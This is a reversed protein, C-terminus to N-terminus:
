VVIHDEMERSSFAVRTEDVEELILSPRWERWTKESARGADVLPSRRRGGRRAPGRRM